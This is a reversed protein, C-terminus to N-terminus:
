MTEPLNNKPIMHFCSRLYILLLLPHSHHQSHNSPGPYITTPVLFVLVCASPIEPGQDFRFICIGNGSRVGDRWEGTYTDGTAYVCHAVGNLQKNHAWRGTWVNGNTM